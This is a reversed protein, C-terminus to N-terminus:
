AKYEHLSNVLASQVVHEEDGNYFRQATLLGNLKKMYLVVSFALFFAQGTETELTHKNFYAPRCITAGTWAAFALAEFL